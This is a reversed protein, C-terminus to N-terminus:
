STFVVRRRGNPHALGFFPVAHCMISADRMWFALANSKVPVYAKIYCERNRM